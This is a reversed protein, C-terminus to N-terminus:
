PRPITATDVPHPLGSVFGYGSVALTSSTRGLRDSWLGDAEAVSRPQTRYAEPEATVWCSEVACRRGLCIRVSQRCASFLFLAREFHTLEALLVLPVAQVGVGAVMVLHGAYVFSEDLTRVSRVESRSHCYTRAMLRTASTREVQSHFLWSLESRLQKLRRIKTARM